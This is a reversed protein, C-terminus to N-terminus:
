TVLDFLFEIPEPLYYIRIINKDLVGLSKLQAILEEAYVRSSVIWLNEINEEVASEVSKIEYKSIITGQLKKNNDCM